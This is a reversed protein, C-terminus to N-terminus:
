LRKDVICKQNIDKEEEKEKGWKIFNLAEILPELKLKYQWYNHIKSRYKVSINAMFRQNTNGNTTFKQGAM